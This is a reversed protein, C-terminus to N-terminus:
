PIWPQGVEGGFGGEGGICAGGFVSEQFLHSAGKYFTGHFRIAGFPQGDDAGDLLEVGQEVFHMKVAVRDISEAEPFDFVEEGVSLVAEEGPLSSHM